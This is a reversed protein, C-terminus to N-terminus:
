GQENLDKIFNLVELKTLNDTRLIGAVTGNKFVKVRASNGNYPLIRVDVDKSLERELKSVREPTLASVGAIRPTEEVTKKTARKTPKKAQPKRVPATKKRPVTEVMIRQFLKLM